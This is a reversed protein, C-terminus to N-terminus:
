NENMIGEITSLIKLNKKNKRYKILKLKIEVLIQNYIILLITCTTFIIITDYIAFKLTYSRYGLSFFLKPFALVFYANFSLFIILEFNVFILALIIINSFDFETKTKIKILAKIINLGIFTFTLNIFILIIIYFFNTEYISPYSTFIFVILKNEWFYNMDNRPETFYLSFITLTIFFTFFSLISAIFIKNRFIIFGKSKINYNSSYSFSQVLIITLIFILLISQIDKLMSLVLTSDSFQNFNEIYFLIIIIISIINAVLAVIISMLFNFKLNTVFTLKTEKQKISPLINTFIEYKRLTFLLLFIHISIIATVIMGTFIALVPNPYNRLLPNDVYKYFLLKRHSEFMLQLPLFVNSIIISSLYLKSFILKKDLIKDILLRFMLCIFLLITFLFFIFFNFNGIHFTYEGIYLSETSILNMFAGTRFESFYELAIYLSSISCVSIIILVLSFELEYEDKIKKLQSNNVIYENKDHYLLTIVFYLTFLWSIAFFFQLSFPDLLDINPNSFIEVFTIKKRSYDINSYNSTNIKFIIGSIIVNLFVFFIFNNLINENIFMRIYKILKKIVM